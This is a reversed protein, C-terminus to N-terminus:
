LERKDLNLTQAYFQFGFLNYYGVHMQHLKNSPHTSCQLLYICGHRNQVYGDGLISSIINIEYIMYTAGGDADLLPKKISLKAIYNILSYSTNM